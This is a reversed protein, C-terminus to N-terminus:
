GGTVSGGDAVMAARQTMTTIGLAQQLKQIPAEFAEATHSALPFSALVGEHLHEVNDALPAAFTDTFVLFDDHNITIVIVALKVFLGEAVALSIDRKRVNLGHSHLYARHKQLEAAGRTLCYSNIAAALLLEPAVGSLISTTALGLSNRTVIRILHRSERCLDHLQSDNLLTLERKVPTIPPSTRGSMSAAETIPSEPDSSLEDEVISFAIPELIRTELENPNSSKDSLSNPSVLPNDPQPPSLFKVPEDPDDWNINISGSFTDNRVPALPGIPQDNTVQVPITARRYHGDKPLPLITWDKPLGCTLSSPTRADTLTAQRTVPPGGPLSPTETDTEHNVVPDYTINNQESIFEYVGEDIELPQSQVRFLM